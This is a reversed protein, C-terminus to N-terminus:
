NIEKQLSIDLFPAVKKRKVFYSTYLVMPCYGWMTINSDIYYARRHIREVEARGSGGEM